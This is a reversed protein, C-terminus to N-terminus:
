LTTTDTNIKTVIPMDKASSSLGKTPIVTSFQIATSRRNDYLCMITKGATDPTVTVNLQSTYINGEVSLSQAVIAGNNCVRFTGNASTFRQHFLKIECNLASGTWITVQTSYRDVVTCEYTLTDGPCACGSTLVANISNKAKQIPM